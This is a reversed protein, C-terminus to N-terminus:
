EASKGNGSHRELLEEDTPGTTAKKSRKLQNGGIRPVKSETLRQQVLVEDTPGTTAKAVHSRLQRQEIHSSPRQIIQRWQMPIKKVKTLGSRYTPDKYM